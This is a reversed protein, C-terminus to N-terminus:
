INDQSPKPSFLVEIPSHGSLKKERFEHLYQCKIANLSKSAFIHDFRYGVRRGNKNPYYSYEQKGFGNIQRYVEVLDYKELGELINREASDWRQGWFKQLVIEGNRKRKQGWTMIKGDETELQPTNFDGCLIRPYKSDYALAKYLGELTMAKKPDNGGVQPIHATHVQLDGWPCIIFCSLVKEPWPVDFHMPSTILPWRSAILEGYSRGQIRTLYKVSQFSDIISYYGISSLEARYQPATRATVEQLAIIDPDRTRLADVQNSIRDGEIGMVNWSILRM